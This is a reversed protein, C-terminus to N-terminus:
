RPGRAPDPPAMRDRGLLVEDWPDRGAREDAVVGCFGWLAAWFREPEAVSWAHLSPSDHVAAAAGGLPQVSDRIFRTVNAREVQQTSPTWLPTPSPESM